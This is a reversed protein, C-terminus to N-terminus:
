PVGLERPSPLTLVSSVNDELGATGQRQAIFAAADTLEVNRFM